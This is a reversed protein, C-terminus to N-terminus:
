RSVRNSEEKDINLLRPFLYWNIVGDRQGTTNFMRNKGRLQRIVHRIQKADNRQHSHRRSKSAQVGIHWTVTTHPLLPTLHDLYNDCPNYVVTYQQTVNRNHLFYQVIFFPLQQLLELSKTWWDVERNVEDSCHFLRITKDMMTGQLALDLTM